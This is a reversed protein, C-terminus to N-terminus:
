KVVESNHTAKEKNWRNRGISIGRSIFDKSMCKRSCTVRTDANSKKVNFGKGCVPCIKHVPKIKALDIEKSIANYRQCFSDDMKIKRYFDYATPMGDIKSLSFVKIKLTRMTQLISDWDYSNLKELSRLKIKENIPKVAERSINNKYPAPKHKPRYSKKDLKTPDIIISKDGLSIRRKLSEAQKSATLSAVLGRSHPLGFMIKYDDIGIGKHKHFLHSGLSKKEEGCILCTLKDGSLYKEVEAKTKFMM